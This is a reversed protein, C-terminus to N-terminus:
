TERAHDAMAIRLARYTDDPMRSLVERWAARLSTSTVEIEVRSPTDHEAMTLALARRRITLELEYEHM